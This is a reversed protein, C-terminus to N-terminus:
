HRIYFPIYLQHDMMETSVVACQIRQPSSTAQHHLKPFFVLQLLQEGLSPLVIRVSQPVQYICYSIVYEPSRTFSLTVYIMIMQFVPMWPCDEYMKNLVNPDLEKNMTFYKRYLVSVFRNLKSYLKLSCSFYSSEKLTAKPM